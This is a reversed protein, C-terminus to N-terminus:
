LCIQERYDLRASRPTKFCSVLDSNYPFSLHLSLWAFLSVWNRPLCGVHLFYNSRGRMVSSGICGHWCFGKLQIKYSSPWTGPSHTGFSGHPAACRSSGLRCLRCFGDALGAARISGSCIFGGSFVILRPVTKIHLRWVPFCKMKESNWLVTTVFQQCILAM